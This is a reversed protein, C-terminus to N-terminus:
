SPFEAKGFYFDLLKKAIYIWAAETNIGSFNPDAVDYLPIAKYTIPNTWEYAGQMGNNCYYTKNEYEFSYIGSLSGTNTSIVHAYDVTNSVIVPVYWNSWRTIFGISWYKSTNDNAKVAYYNAGAQTYILTSYYSGILKETPEAIEFRTDVEKELILDTITCTYGIPMIYIYKQGSIDSVDMTIETEGTATNSVKKDFEINRPDVVTMYKTSTIGLWFPFADGYHASETYKIKISKINTLDIPYVTFINIDINSGGNWNTVISEGFSASVSPNYDTTVNWTVEQFNLIVNMSIGTRFNNGSVEGSSVSIKGINTAMTQFTADAATTIGKDTIASAILSKGSSVSQFVENLKATVVKNQVPNTSNESLASDITIGSNTQEWDTWTGHYYKRQFTKNNFVDLLTQYLAISASYGANVVFMYGGYFGSPKNTAEYGISILSPATTLTNLDVSIHSYDIFAETKKAYTSKINNGDEDAVAKAVPATGDKVDSLDFNLKAVDATLTDGDGTYPVFDDYTADLNTTIMPKFVKNPITVAGRVVIYVIAKTINESTIKDNKVIVGNGFDYGGGNDTSNNIEYQIDFTRDGGGAPCGVLKFDKNTTNKAFDTITAIPFYLTGSSTGNVTYTGDGNNICTVGSNSTTQLTPKLLNKCKGLSSISADIQEAKENGDITRTISTALEYYLYQGQMAQKFTSSSTYNSNRIILHYDASIATSGLCLGETSDNWIRNAEVFKYGNTTYFNKTGQVTIVEELNETYVFFPTQTGNNIYKWDLSGLDVRGVKQVFQNDNVENQVPCERPVSWGLIKLDSLNSNVKDFEAKVVKNQIPNISENSLADDINSTTIITGTPIDLVSLSVSDKFDTTTDVSGDLPTVTVDGAITFTFYENSASPYSFEELIWIGKDDTVRVMRVKTIGSATINNQKTIGSLQVIRIDGNVNQIQFHANCKPQNAWGGTVYLDFNFYYSTTQAIKHWGGTNAPVTYKVTYGKLKSNDLNDLESKIVKNQVPNESTASLANDVTIASATPAYLITETGDITIKGIQTGETLIAEATVTSGSGSGGTPAYLQYTTGDVTIEAINTGTLTKPVVSVTSGGTSSAPTYVDFTNTGVTITGAKTGGTIASEYSVNPAYIVYETGDITITAIKTGSNITTDASVSKIANDRLYAELAAIATDYSNMIAATAPTTKSPKDVWGSPYPKTFTPTYNAM